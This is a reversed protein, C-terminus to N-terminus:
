LRHTTAPPIPMSPWRTSLQYTVSSPWQCIYLLPPSHHYSPVLSAPSSGLKLGRFCKNRVPSWLDHALRPSLCHRQFIKWKCPTEITSHSGGPRQLDQRGRIPHKKSLFLSRREEVTMIFESPSLVLLLHQSQWNAQRYYGLDQERFTQLFCSYYGLPM